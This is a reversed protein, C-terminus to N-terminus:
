LIAKVKFTQTLRSRSVAALTNLIGGLSDKMAGTAVMVVDDLDM